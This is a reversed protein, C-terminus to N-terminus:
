RHTVAYRMKAGQYYGNKDVAYYGKVCKLAALSLESVAVEQNKFSTLEDNLFKCLRNQADRLRPFKLAYLRAMREADAETRARQRSHTYRKAFCNGSNDSTDSLVPDGKAWQLWNLMMEYVSDTMKEGKGFV